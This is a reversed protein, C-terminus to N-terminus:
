WVNYISNNVKLSCTDYYSKKLDFVKKRIDGTYDHIINRDFIIQFELYPIIDPIYAYLTHFFDYESIHVFDFEGFYKLARYCADFNSPNYFPQENVDLITVIIKTQDCHLRFNFGYMTKFFNYLLNIYQSHHKKLNSYPYKVTPLM